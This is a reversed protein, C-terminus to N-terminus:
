VSVGWLPNHPEAHLLGAACVKVADSTDISTSEAIVLASEANSTWWTSDYVVNEEITVYDAYNVRIASGPAHHVSNNAITIHHGGWVAIGRGNFHAGGGWVANRVFRRDAM